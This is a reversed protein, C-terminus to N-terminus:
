TVIQVPPPRPPVRRPRKPWSLNGARWGAILEDVAAESLEEHPQPAQPAFWPRAPEQAAALEVPQPASSRNFARLISARDAAHPRAIPDV